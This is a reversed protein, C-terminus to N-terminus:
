RLTATIQVDGDPQITAHFDGSMARFEATGGDVVGDYTLPPWHFSWSAHLQGRNTLTLIDDCLVNSAFTVTCIEYDHGTVAGGQLLDDRGLVRAGPALPGTPSTSTAGAGTVFEINTLHAVVSIRTSEGERSSTDARTGHTSLGWGVGAGAAAVVLGAVLTWAQTRMWTM